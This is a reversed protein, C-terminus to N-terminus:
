DQLEQRMAELRPIVQTEDSLECLDVLQQSIYTWDLSTQRQLIGRVDSWDRDRGAFAKM